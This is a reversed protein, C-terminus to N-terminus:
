IAGCVPPAVKACGQTTYGFFIRGDKHIYFRGFIPTKAAARRRSGGIAGHRISRSLRKSAPLTTRYNAVQNTSRLSRNGRVERILLADVPSERARRTTGLVAGIPLAAM